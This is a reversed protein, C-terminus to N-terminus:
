EMSMLVINSLPKTIHLVPPSPFCGRCNSYLFIEHSLTCLCLILFLKWDYRGHKLERQLLMVVSINLAVRICFCCPVKYICFLFSVGLRHIIYIGDSVHEWLLLQPMVLPQLTPMLVGHNWIYVYRCMIAVCAFLRVLSYCFRLEVNYLVLWWVCITYLRLWIVCPVLM